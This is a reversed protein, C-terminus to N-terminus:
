SYLDIIEIVDKFWEMNNAMMFTSHGMGKYKKDCILNDGLQTALWEVDKPNALKDDLGSFLAIPFDHITTLDYEKPEDSHYINRNMEKGYDYMRFKRSRIMQVFHAIAKLSSGGPSHSAYVPMMKENNSSGSNVDCILNSIFTCIYPLKPMVWSNLKELQTDQGLVEWFAFRECLLDIKLLKM